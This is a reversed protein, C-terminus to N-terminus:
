PASDHSILQRSSLHLIYVIYMLDRLSTPIFPEWAKKFSRRWGPEMVGGKTVM